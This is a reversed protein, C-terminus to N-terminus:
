HTPGDLETTFMKFFMPNQKRNLNKQKKKVSFFIRKM